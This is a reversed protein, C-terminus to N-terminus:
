PIPRPLSTLTLSPRPPAILAFRGPAALFTAPACTPLPRRRPPAAARNAARPANGACCAVRGPPCRRQRLRRVRGVRQRARTADRCSRCTAIGEPPCQVARPQASLATSTEHPRSLLAYLLAGNTVNGMAACFCSTPAELWASESATADRLRGHCAECNGRSAAVLFTVSAFWRAYHLLLPLREIYSLSLALSINAYSSCEGGPADCAERLVCAPNYSCADADACYRYTKTAAAM